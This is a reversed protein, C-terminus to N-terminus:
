ADMWKKGQSVDSRQGRPDETGELFGAFFFLAFVGCDLRPLQSASFGQTGGFLLVLFSKCLGIVFGRFIRLVYSVLSSVAFLFLRM